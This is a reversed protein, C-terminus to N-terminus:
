IQAATERLRGLGDFDLLWDVSSVRPARRAARRSAMTAAGDVARVSSRPSLSAASRRRGERVLREGGGLRTRAVGM